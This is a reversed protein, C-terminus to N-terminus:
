TNLVMFNVLKLFQKSIDVYATLRKPALTIHSFAGAGDQADAVEGEWTVNGGDMVPIQVDGVLGTIFKAGAGVLVNKARLPEVINYLDTAVVDDGESAVTITARSEMSPLQIQGGYSLGSKRLEEAFAKDDNM